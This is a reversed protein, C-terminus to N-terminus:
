FVIEDTPLSKGFVTNWVKNHHDILHAAPINRTEFTTHADKAVTINYDLDVGCKVATDVCFETQIGCLVLDKINKSKLYEDIGTKYFCSIRNKDIIKEHMLPKIDEHLKAGESHEALHPYRNDIHRFFIVESSAHRANKILKTINKVTESGNYIKFRDSIFPARQVDIVLLAKKM